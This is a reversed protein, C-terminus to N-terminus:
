FGVRSMFEVDQEGLMDSDLDVRQVLVGDEYLWAARNALVLQHQGDIVETVGDVIAETLMREMLMRALNTTGNMADGKTTGAMPGAPQEDTWMMCAGCALNGYDLRAPSYDPPFTWEPLTQYNEVYHMNDSTLTTM